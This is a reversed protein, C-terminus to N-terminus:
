VFRDIQGKKHLCSAGALSFLETVQTANLAQSAEVCCGSTTTTLSLDDIGDRDMLAGFFDFIACYGSVRSPSRILPMLFECM